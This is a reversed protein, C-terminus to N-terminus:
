MPKTYTATQELLSLWYLSFPTQRSCTRAAAAKDHTCKCRKGTSITSTVAFHTSSQHLRMVYTDTTDILAHQWVNGPQVPSSDDASQSCLTLKVTPKTIRTLLKCNDERTHGVDAFACTAEIHLLKICRHPADMHTLSNDSHARITWTKCGHLLTGIADHTM